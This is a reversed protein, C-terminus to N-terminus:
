SSSFQKNHFDSPVNRALLFGSVTCNHFYQITTQYPTLFNIFFSVKWNHFNPFKPEMEMLYYIFFNLTTQNLKCHETIFYDLVM